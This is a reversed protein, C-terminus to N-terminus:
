KILRVSSRITGMAADPIIKYTLKARHATWTYPTQLSRKTGQSLVTERRPSLATAKETAVNIDTGWNCM